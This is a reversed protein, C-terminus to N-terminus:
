PFHLSSPYAAHRQRGLAYISSAVDDVAPRQDRRQLRALEAARREVDGLDLRERGELGSHPKDLTMMEGCM